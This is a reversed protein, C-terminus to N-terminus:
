GAHGELLPLWRRLAHAILGALLMFGVILLRMQCATPGGDAHVHDSARRHGEKGSTENRNMPIVPHLQEMVPVKKRYTEVGHGPPQPPPKCVTIAVPDTAPFTDALSADLRADGRRATAAADRREQITSHSSIMDHFDEARFTRCLM